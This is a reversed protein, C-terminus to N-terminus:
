IVKKMEAHISNVSLGFLDVMRSIFLDKSEPNKIRNATKLCEKIIGSQPLGMSKHVNHYYTVGDIGAHILDNLAGRGRERVFTDPDYGAPLTAVWVDLGTELLPLVNKASTNLGAEDGDYLLTVSHTLTSLLKSQAKTLATGLQALAPFGNIALRVCDLNGETLVVGNISTDGLNQLGYFMFGKKYYDSNPSATYKPEQGELLARGSFAIVDGKTTFIPFMLRNVFREYEKGEYGVLFGATSLEANSFGQHRAEDIFHVEPSYYGLDFKRADEETFDRSYLYDYAISSKLQEEFFFKAWWNLEYLRKSEIVTDEEVVVPSKPTLWRERIYALRSDEDIIYGNLKALKSVASSFDTKDMDMVFQIADGKAHCSFCNFITDGKRMGFSPNNDNHYPCCAKVWDGNVEIKNLGYEKFLDVVDITEKLSKINVHNM